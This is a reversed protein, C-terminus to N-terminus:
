AAAKKLGIVECIAFIAVIDAVLATAWWGAASFSVLTTLLLVWSGVVWAIDFATVVQAATRNIQPRTSIWFVEAAFLLIGIGLVLIVNPMGTGLFNDVAKADFTFLLGSLTSFIANALLTNRLFSFSSATTPTSLTQQM